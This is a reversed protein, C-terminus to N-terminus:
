IIQNLENNWIIGGTIRGGIDLCGGYSLYKSNFIVHTILGRHLLRVLYRSQERSEGNDIVILEFPYKTNNNISVITRKLLNLYGELNKEDNESIFTPLIISCYSFNETNVLIGTGWSEKQKRWM